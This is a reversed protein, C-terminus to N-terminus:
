QHFCHRKSKNIILIPNQLLGKWSTCLTWLKAVYKLKLLATDTLHWNTSLCYLATNQKTYHHLIYFLFHTYKNSQTCYIYVLTDMYWMNKITVNYMYSVLWQSFPFHPDAEPFFDSTIGHHNHTLQLSLVSCPSCVIIMLVKHSSKQRELFEWGGCLLVDLQKHSTQARYLNWIWAMNSCFHIFHITNYTMIRCQLARNPQPFAPSILYFKAHIM